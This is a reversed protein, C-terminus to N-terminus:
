FTLCTTWIIENNEIWKIVKDHYNNKDSKSKGTEIFIPFDNPLNSCISKPNFVKISTFDFDVSEPRIINRIEMPSLTNDIEAYCTGYDKMLLKYVKSNDIILEYIKKAKAESDINLLDFYVIRHGSIEEDKTLVEKEFFDLDRTQSM